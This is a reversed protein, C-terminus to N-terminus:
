EAWRGVVVPSSAEYGLKSEVAVRLKTGLVQRNTRGVTSPSTQRRAAATAKSAHEAAGAAGVGVSTSAVIGSALFALMGVTSAIIMRRM